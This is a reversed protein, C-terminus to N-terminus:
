KFFFRVEVLHAPPAFYEVGGVLFTGKAPPRKGVRLNKAGKGDRRTAPFFYSVKKQM